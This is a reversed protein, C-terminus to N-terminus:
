GSVRAYHHTKARYCPGHPDIGRARPWNRGPDGMTDANQRLLPIRLCFTAEGWPFVDSKEEVNGYPGFCECISVVM